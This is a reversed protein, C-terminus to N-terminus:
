RAPANRSPAWVEPIPLPLPFHLLPGERGGVSLVRGAPVPSEPFLVPKVGLGVPAEQGDAQGEEDHKLYGPGRRTLKGM